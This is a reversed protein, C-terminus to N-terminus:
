SIAAILDRIPADGKWDKAAAAVIDYIQTLIASPPLLELMCGMQARTDAYCTPIGGSDMETALAIGNARLAATDSAFDDTIKCMHHFGTEGDAVVDRYASPGPSTQQILEIQISGAQALGARFSLPVPQGRYLADPYDRDLVYFPGVGMAVWGEIAKELDPVVWANQVFNTGLPLM